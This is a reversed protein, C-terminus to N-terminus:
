LSAFPFTYNVSDIQNRKRLLFFFTLEAVRVFFFVRSVVEKKNTLRVDLKVGRKLPKKKNIPCYVSLEGFLFRLNKQTDM